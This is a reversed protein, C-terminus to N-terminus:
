QQGTRFEGDIVLLDAGDGTGGAVGDAGMCRLRYSHGSAAYDLARGWPDAPVSELKAPVLEALSSPLRGTEAHFLEIARAVQVMLDHARRLPYNQVAHALGRYVVIQDRAKAAVESEPYEDILKQLLDVAAATDGKEVRSLAQRWLREARRQRGDCSAITAVLSVVLMFILFSESRARRTNVEDTRRKMIRASELM